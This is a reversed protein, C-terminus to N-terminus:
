RPLPEKFPHFPPPPDPMRMEAHNIGFGKIKILATGPTATPIPVDRIVLNEVPGFASIVIAKMTKTSSSM